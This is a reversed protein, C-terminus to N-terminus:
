LHSLGVVPLCKVRKAIQNSSTNKKKILFFSIEEVETVANEKRKEFSQKGAEPEVSCSGRWM